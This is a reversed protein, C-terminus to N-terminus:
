RLWALWLERSFAHDRGRERAGANLEDRSFRVIEDYLARQEQTLSFDM